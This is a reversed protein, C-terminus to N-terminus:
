PVACVLSVHVTRRAVVTVRVPQTCPRVVHAGSALTTVLSPSRGSVTYSGPPLSVSFRGTEGVQVAVMRHHGASFQLTGTLPVPRPQTGGPGLPGGVRTFTGTMTGDSNTSARTPPTSTGCATMSAALAAAPIWMMLKM